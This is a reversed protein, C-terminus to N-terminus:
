DLSQKSAGVGSKAHGKTDSKGKKDGNKKNSKKAYRFGKPYMFTREYWAVRQKWLSVIKELKNKAVIANSAKQTEMINAYKLRM